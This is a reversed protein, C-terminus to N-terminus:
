FSVSGRNLVVDKKIQMCPRSTEAGSEILWFFPVFMGLVDCRMWKSKIHKKSPFLLAEKKLAHLWAHMASYLMHRCIEEDLVICNKSLLIVAVAHHVETNMTCSIWNKRIQPPYDTYPVLSFPNNHASSKCFWCRKPSSKALSHLARHSLHGKTLHSQETASHIPGPTIHYNELRSNFSPNGKLDTRRTIPRHGSVWCSIFDSCSSYGYLETSLQIRAALCQTTLRLM